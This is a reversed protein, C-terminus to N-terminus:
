FSVDAYFTDWQYGGQKPCTKSSISPSNVYGGYYYARTGHMPDECGVKVRYRRPENDCRAQATYAGVFRFYCQSPTHAAPVATAAMAEGALLLPSGACLGVVALTALARTARFFSM